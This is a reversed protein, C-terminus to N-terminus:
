KPVKVKGPKSKAEDDKEATVPPFGNFRRWLEYWLPVNELLVWGQARTGQRLAFDKPWEKEDEDPEVLVRFRGKGDDHPDVFLIKGGFTGVALSPWGVWQIAPWGEFQVRVLIPCDRGHREWLTLLQPSDNGDLYLEVIRKSSEKIIPTIVALRDGAKVLAGGRDANALIRFVTGDSCARVEQTTQRAIRIKLDALDRTAAALEADASQKSAQASAIAADANNKVTDVDAFLAKVEDKAAQFTNLARDKEAEAQKQRAIATEFTLQSTLGDRRLDAEMRSNLAEVRLREKAVSVAQDAAEQRQVSMAHRSKAGELARERSAQLSTVQTAFSAIRAKAATIREEIAQRQEDLRRPLDPDPDQIEVLRDGERVLKGDSSYVPGKVSDGERVHWKLIRGDIPAEIDQQRETPDFAVLRGSGHFSQQWPLLGMLVPSIVFVVLLLRAFWRAGRPTHTLKLTAFRKEQLSTQISM